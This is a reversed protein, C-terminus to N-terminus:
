LYRAMEKVHSATVEPTHLEARTPFVNGGPANRIADLLSNAPDSPPTNLFFDWYPDDGRRGAGRWPRRPWGSPLAVVRGAQRLPQHEGEAARLLRRRRGSSSRPGRRPGRHVRRGHVGRVRGSARTM